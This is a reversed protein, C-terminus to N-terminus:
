VFRILNMRAPVAQVDQAHEVKGANFDSSTACNPCTRGQSAIEHALHSDNALVIGRSALRITKVTRITIQRANSHAVRDPTVAVMDLMHSM